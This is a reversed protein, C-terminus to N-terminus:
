SPSLLVPSWGVEARKSKEKKREIWSKVYHINCYYM